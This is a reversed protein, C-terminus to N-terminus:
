RSGPGPVVVAPLRPYGEPLLAVGDATAFYVQWQYYGRFVREDASLLGAYSQIAQVYHLSNNYAYLARDMDDPGGASDLYRGAALIADRNSNVDGQGFRAWTEPIFQMPGQAGASSTGRIRGLRTEVLHIAALYPWPIGSASEAERYYGLLVDLPEPAEIHWEPVAPQPQNLTAIESVATVNASVVPALEAPVAARVPEIWDPHASLARYAHQQEWGLVRLQEPTSVDSRLAREVRTITGATEQPDAPLALDSPADVTPAATDPATTSSSTQTAREDPQGGSEPGACAAGLMLLAVVAGRVDVWRM